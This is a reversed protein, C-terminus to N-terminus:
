ARHQAAEVAALITAQNLILSYGSSFFTAAALIGLPTM